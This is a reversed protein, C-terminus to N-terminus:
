ELQFYARMTACFELYQVPSGSALFAQVSVRPCRPDLAVDLVLVLINCAHLGDRSVSECHYGPSCYAFRVHTRAFFAELQLQMISEPVESTFRMEPIEALSGTGASGASSPSSSTGPASGAAIAAALYDEPLTPLSTSFGSSSGYDARPPTPSGSRSGASHPSAAPSPTHHFVSAWFTRQPANPATDEAGPPTRQHQLPLPLVPVRASASLSSRRPKAAAREHAAEFVPPSSAGSGPESCYAHRPTPSPTAPGPPTVAGLGGHHRPPPCHDECLPSLRVTQAGSTVGSSTSTSTSTTSSSSSCPALIAGPATSPAAVPRRPLLQPSLVGRPAPPLPQVPPSVFFDNSNSRARCASTLPSTHASGTIGATTLRPVLPPSPPTHHHQQQQHSFALPDNERPTQQQQQQHHHHHHQQQQQQLFPYPVETVSQARSRYVLAAGATTTPSAPPIGVTCSTSSCSTSCSSTATTTAGGSHKQRLLINYYARAQSHPASLLEHEIDARSGLRLAELTALVDPDLRAAPICPADCDLAYDPLPPPPPLGPDLPAALWPHRKLEPMAIRRAPDVTLMRAILDRADPPVFAPVTYAGRCVKDLLRPLADDDFPLNSTALTYLIVGCSWIDAARGDYPAGRVVEPAAYHPSGCSTALRAGPRMVAAMGLDAIKVRGGADLLINEPKLDRHAIGQSHLYDVGAVIERFLRRTERAPVHGRRVIYDFLEGGAVLEMVVFLSRASEYVAHLRLVHPHDVLKLVAIERQVKQRAAAAGALADKRVIKVAVKEGTERHFGVKVKGTTGEGLTRGLVYPGVSHVERPVGPVAPAAFERVTSTPTTSSGGGRWERPEDPTGRSPQTKADATTPGPTHSPILLDPACTSIPAPESFM